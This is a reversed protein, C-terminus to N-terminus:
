NGDANCVWTAIQAKGLGSLGYHCYHSTRGLVIVTIHLAGWFSSLLTFHTGSRKQMRQLYNGWRYPLGNPCVKLASTFFITMLEGEALAAAVVSATLM